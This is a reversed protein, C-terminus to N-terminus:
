QNVGKHPNYPKALHRLYCIVQSSWGSSRKRWASSIYYRYLIKNHNSM